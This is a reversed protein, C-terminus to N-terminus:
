FQANREKGPNAEQASEPGESSQTLPAAAAEAQLVKSACINSCFSLLGYRWFDPNAYLALDSDEVFPCRVHGDSLFPFLDALPAAVADSTRTVDGVLEQMVPEPLNEFLDFPLKPNQSSNFQVQYVAQTAM